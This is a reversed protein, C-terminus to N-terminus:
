KETTNLENVDIDDLRSAVPIMQVGGWGGGSCSACTNRYSTSSKSISCTLEIIVVNNDFPLLGLM